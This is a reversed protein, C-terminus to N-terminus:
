IDNKEKLEKQQEQLARLRKIERLWKKRNRHNGSVAAVTWYYEADAIRDELSNHYITTTGGTQEIIM